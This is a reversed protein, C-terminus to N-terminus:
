RKGIGSAAAERITAAADEVVIYGALLNDNTVRAVANVYVGHDPYLTDLTAEEFPLYTGYRACATMDPGNVSSNTATPVAHQSLRVGGLANGFEDRALVNHPWGANFAVVEIGAASLPEIGHEAWEVLHDIAANAAYQSPIRSIGILVYANKSGIRASGRKEASSRFIRRSSHHVDNQVGEIM